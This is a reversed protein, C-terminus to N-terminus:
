DKDQGITTELFAMMEEISDILDVVERRPVDRRGEHMIKNRHTIAAQCKQFTEEAPLSTDQPLMLKLTTKVNGSLGVDKILEEIQKASIGKTEGTNRIVASVSIELAIVANLLAQVDRHYHLETRADALFSQTLPVRRDIVQQLANHDEKSCLPKALAIPWAALGSVRTPFSNGEGIAAYVNDVFSSYDHYKRLGYRKLAIRAADIFGNLADFFPEHYREYLGHIEVQREDLVPIRVAVETFRFHSYEDSIVEGNKVEGVYTKQARFVDVPQIQIITEKRYPITYVWNDLHLCVPLVATIVVYRTPAVPDESM